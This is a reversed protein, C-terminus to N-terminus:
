PAPISKLEGPGLLAVGPAQEVRWLCDASAPPTMSNGNPPPSM